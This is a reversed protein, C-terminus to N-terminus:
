SRPRVAVLRGDALESSVALRSLVAAGEGATPRHGHAALAREM